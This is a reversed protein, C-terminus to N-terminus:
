GLGNIRGRGCGIGDGCYLHYFSGSIFDSHKGIYESLSSSKGGATEMQMISINEFNYNYEGKENGDNYSVNNLIINLEDDFHGSLYKNKRISLVVEQLYVDFNICQCFVGYKNKYEPHIFWNNLRTNM